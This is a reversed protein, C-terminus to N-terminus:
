GMDILSVEGGSFEIVAHIRSVKADDIKVQASPLRGIKITRHVDSDFVHQGIQQGDQLVQVNLAVGM